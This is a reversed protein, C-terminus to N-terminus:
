ENAIGGFIVKEAKETHETFLHTHFNNGEENMFVRERDEEICFPCPEGNGLALMGTIKM